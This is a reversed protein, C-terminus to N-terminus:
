RSRDLVERGAGVGRGGPGVVVVVVAVQDLRLVRELGDGVAVAVVGVPVQGPDALRVQVTQRQVLVELTVGAGAVGLAVVRQHGVVGVALQDPEVRGPGM